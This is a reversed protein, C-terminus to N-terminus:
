RVEQGCTPCVGMDHLVRQYEQDHRDVQDGLAKALGVQRVIENMTAAIQDVLGRLRNLDALAQQAADLDLDPPEPPIQTQIVAQEDAAAQHTLRSLRDLDAQREELRALEAAAGDLLKKEEPLDTFERIQDRYRDVDGTRIRLRQNAEVRRRNAERVAEHLLTVNTLSGVVQAAKFGTEALLFPRDFQFSFNLDTDEVLPMGIAKLIPEPVARNAKTYRQSGFVYTSLSRGREISIPEVDALDVTIQSKARGSRVNAPVFTNRLCARTARLFASKGSNSPGVLVTFRGLMLDAAAISQFDRVAVSTVSPTGVITIVPLSL